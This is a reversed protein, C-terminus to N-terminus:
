LSAPRLSPPWTSSALSRPASSAPSPSSRSPTWLSAERRPKFSQLVRILREAEAVYYAFDATEGSRQLAHAKALAANIERQTTDIAILTDADRILDANIVDTLTDAIAIYARDAAALRDNPSEPLASCGVYSLPLIIAALWLMLPGAFSSPRTTTPPNGASDSPPSPQKDRARWLGIAFAIGAVIVGIDAKTTPDNDLENQVNTLISVIAGILGATTTQWNTM